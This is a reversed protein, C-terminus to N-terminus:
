LTSQNSQRSELSISYFIVAQKLSLMAVRFNCKTYPQLTDGAKVAIEFLHNPDTPLCVTLRVTINYLISGETTTAEQNDGWQGGCLTQWDSGLYCNSHLEQLLVPISINQLTTLASRVLIGDKIRVHEPNAANYKETVVWTIDVFLSGPKM